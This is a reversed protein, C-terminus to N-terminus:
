LVELHEMICMGVQSVSKNFIKTSDMLYQTLVFIIKFFRFIFLTYV